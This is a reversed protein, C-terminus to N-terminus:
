TNRIRFECPVSSCKVCVDPFRRGRLFVKHIGTAPEGGHPFVSRYWFMAVM